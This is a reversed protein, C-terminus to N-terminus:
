SGVNDPVRCMLVIRRQTSMRMMAVSRIRGGALVIEEGAAACLKGLRGMEKVYAGNEQM